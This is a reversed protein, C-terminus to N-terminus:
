RDDPEELISKSILGGGETVEIVYNKGEIEVEAEYVHGAIGTSRTISGIKGGRARERLSNQVAAPCHSLEVDDEAIVLLKEVLTGNRAVVISYDKGGLSVVAEYVTVGYRVDRGVADFRAGHSEERLTKQVAPPCANFAVEDDGPDLTMQQLVGKDDVEIRYRKGALDVTTAYTTRDDDALKDVEGV